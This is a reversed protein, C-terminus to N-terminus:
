LQQDIPKRVREREKRHKKKKKHSDIASDTTEEGAGDMAALADSSFSPTVSAGFVSTDKM